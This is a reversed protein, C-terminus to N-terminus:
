GRITATEFRVMDCTRSLGLARKVTPFVRASAVASALELVAAEGYTSMLVQRAADLDPDRHVIALAFRQVERLPPPLDEARLTAAARVIGVAVGGRLAENIGMQLCAGCGESASATLSAVTHADRPLARHHAALAAVRLFKFFLPRAIEAMRRLHPLGDPVGVRREIADVVRQLLWNTLM